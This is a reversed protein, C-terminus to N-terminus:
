SSLQHLLSSHNLPFSILHRNFQSGRFPALILAHAIIFRASVIPSRTKVLDILPDPVLSESHRLNPSSAVVCLLLELEALSAVSAAIFRLSLSFLVFPLFYTTRAATQQRTSPSYRLPTIHRVPSLVIPTTCM